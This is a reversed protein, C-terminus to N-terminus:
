LAAALIATREKKSMAKLPIPQLKDKILVTAVHNKVEQVFRRRGNVSLFEFIYATYEQNDNM